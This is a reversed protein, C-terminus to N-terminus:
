LKQDLTDHKRPIAGIYHNKTTAVSHCGLGSEKVERSPCAMFRKSEMWKRIETANKRKEVSTFKKQHQDIYKSPNEIAKDRQFNLFFTEITPNPHRFKKWYHEMERHLSTSIHLPAPKGTARSKEGTKHDAVFVFHFKESIEPIELINNEGSQFEKITMGTIVGPRTFGIATAATFLYIRFSNSDRENSVREKSHRYKTKIREIRPDIWECSVTRSEVEKQKRRWGEIPAQRQFSGTRTYRLSLMLSLATESFSSFDM